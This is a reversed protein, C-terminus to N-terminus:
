RTGSVEVYDVSCTITGSATGSLFAVVPALNVGTLTTVTLSSLLNGDQYFNVLNAGNAGQGMLVQIMLITYSTSTVGWASTQATSASAKFALGYFGTGPSISALSAKYIGVGDTWNTTALNSLLTTSQAGNLISGSAGYQNMLGVFLDSNAGDSLKVRFTAEYSGNAAFVIGAHDNQIQTGSKNTTAAGSLIAVGFADAPSAQSFTGSSSAQANYPSTATVPLSSTLPYAKQFDDFYEFTTPGLASTSLKQPRDYQLSM